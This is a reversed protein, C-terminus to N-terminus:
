ARGGYHGSELAAVFDLGDFIGDGNWDGESWNAPQGTMYKGAQLVAVLDMPDFRGDQNADGPVRMVFDVAGPSPAEAVWSSPLPGFGNPDTRTLSAGQGNAETPWPSELGLQLGDMVLQPVYAPDDDAPEGARELWIEMPDDLVNGSFPGVLVTAPDLTYQIQFVARKTGADLAFPVVVLSQGAAITTGAAFAFQASGALRWGGLDVTAASHNYLEIFRFDEAKLSRPGDPDIPAYHIESIVVDSILRGANASGFTSEALPLLASQGDPWPGLSIGRPSAGYTVTAAFQVPRGLADAQVLWLEGGHVGDLGFGLEAEGM